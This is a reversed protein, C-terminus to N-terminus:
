ALIVLRNVLFDIQGIIWILHLICKYHMHSYYLEVHLTAIYECMCRNKKKNTEREKVRERM